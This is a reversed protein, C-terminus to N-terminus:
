EGDRDAGADREEDGDAYTGLGSQDPADAPEAPPRREVSVLDGRAPRRGVLYGDAGTADAPNADRVWVRRDGDRSLRDAWEDATERDDFARRGGRRNVARGVAGNTRRASPKVDVVYETV